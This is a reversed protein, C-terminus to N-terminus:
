CSSVTVLSPNRTVNRGSMSVKNVTMNYSYLLNCSLLSAHILVGTFLFHSPFLSLFFSLFSFLSPRFVRVRVILWPKGSMYTGDSDEKIPEHSWIQLTWFILGAMMHFTLPWCAFSILQHVIPALKEEIYDSDWLRKWREFETFRKVCAIILQLTIVAVAPEGVMISSEYFWAHESVIDLSFPMRNWYLEEDVTPPPWSRYVRLWRDRSKVM